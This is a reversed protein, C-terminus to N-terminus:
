KIWANSIRRIGNEVTYTVEIIYGSINTSARYVSDSNNNSRHIGTALVIRIIDKIKDWNNNPDPVLNSWNHKPAKIHDQKNQNLNDLNDAFNGIGEQVQLPDFALSSEGEGSIKGVLWGIALSAGAFGVSALTEGFVIGFGIAIPIVNHTLVPAFFTHPDTTSIDYLTVTEEGLAWPIIALCAQHNSNSDILFNAATLKNADIWQKAVPDYLSQDCAAGFM